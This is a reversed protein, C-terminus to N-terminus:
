LVFEVKEQLSLFIESRESPANGRNTCSFHLHFAVIVERSFAFVSFCHKAVDLNAPRYPPSTIGYNRVQLIATVRKPFAEWCQIVFDGCQIILGYRIAVGVVLLCGFFSLNLSNM